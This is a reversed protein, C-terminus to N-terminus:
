KKTIDSKLLRVKLLWPTLGGWGSTQYQQILQWASFLLWYLVLGFPFNLGFILTMLPFMYTMSGQMAVQMDDTGGKTKKALKQEETIIPAMMKASFLQLLTAIIL